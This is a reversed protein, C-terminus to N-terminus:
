SAWASTSSPTGCRRCSCPTSPTRRRRERLHHLRVAHLSLPIGRSVRLGAASRGRAPKTEAVQGPNGLRAPRRGSRDGPAGQGRGQPVPLQHRHQERALRGHGAPGRDHAVYEYYGPERLYLPLVYRNKGATFQVSQKFILNDNEKLTLTGEGPQLSNLMIAAEYTEGAKVFKPLELRRWGYKTSTSTSSRCCTWRSTARPSSDLAASLNGETPVGDSILM